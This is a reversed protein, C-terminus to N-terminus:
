GVNSRHLFDGLDLGKKRDDDNAQQELVPSVTFKSKPIAQQLQRAKAKWKDFAGLDPYLTVRRGHLPKCITANLNSISGCALWIFSEDYASAIIATKESEVIAVPKDPFQTLLHEGFLCQKLKFTTRFDALGSTRLDAANKDEPSKQSERSESKPELLCHAWTIHSFPKKVRKGTQTDYLMIKGTRVWGEADIQWFVTAGRWHKATGVRYQCILRYTVDIGFTELLYQVFNNREYKCITADVIEPNIFLPQHNNTLPEHNIKRKPKFVRKSTPQYNITSPEHNSRPKPKYIRKNIQAITMPRYGAHRSGENRFYQSPKYHYGCNNERGCRGVHDALHDGTDTNIYRVFTRARDNCNPCHYRSSPTSYPELTYM